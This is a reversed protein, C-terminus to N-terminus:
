CIFVDDGDTGCHTCPQPTGCHISVLTNIQSNLAGILVPILDRSKLNSGEVKYQILSSLQNSIDDIREQLQASEPDLPDFKAADLLAAKLDEQLALLQKQNELLETLFTITETTNIITEIANFLHM